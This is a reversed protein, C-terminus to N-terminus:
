FASFLKVWLVCLSIAHFLLAKSVPCVGCPVRMLGTTPILPKLLRYMRGDEGESKGSGVKVIDKVKGDYILTNLVDKIDNVTLKIQVSLLILSHGNSGINEAQLRTWTPSVECYLDGTCKLWESCRRKGCLVCSSHSGHNAPGGHNAWLSFCLLSAM